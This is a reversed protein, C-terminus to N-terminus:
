LTEPPIPKNADYRAPHNPSLGKAARRERWITYCGSLVIMAAGLYMTPGPREGFVTIGLILAFVIRTYRFPAIVAVAGVRMAAAIGLYGMPLFTIMGALMWASRGEPIVATEGRMAMMLLGAPIVAALGYASMQFINIEAPARRTTLDRLALGVVAVCALLAAPPFGDRWPQIVVLVGLLGVLVAAWRHPGVPERLWLAAGVTVVLTNAQGIASVTSIPALLLASSFTVTGLAEAASRALIMPHGAHRLWNRAGTALALPVSIATGAVGITLVIQGPPIVGGSLKLFADTIAFGLMGLVMLAIGRLNDQDM